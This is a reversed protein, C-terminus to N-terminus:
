AVSATLSGLEATHGPLEKVLLLTSYIRPSLEYNALKAKTDRLQHRNVKQDYISDM